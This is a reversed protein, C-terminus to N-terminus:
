CGSRRAIASLRGARPTPCWERVKSRLAWAGLKLAVGLEWGQGRGAPVLLAGCVRHVMMGKGQESGSGKAEMKVKKARGRALM